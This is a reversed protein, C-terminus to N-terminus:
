LLEKKMLADDFIWPFIINKFPHDNMIEPHVGDYNKIEWSYKNNKLKVIRDKAERIAVDLSYKKWNMLHYSLKIIIKNVNMVYPYHFIPNQLRLGADTPTNWVGPVFDPHRWRRNKSVKFIRLRWPDITSKFVHQRFSRFFHVNSLVICKNPQQCVFLNKKIEDALEPSIIEDGDLKMYLDTAQDYTVNVMETISKWGPRADVFIKNEPDPFEKIKRLTNDPKWVKMCPVPGYTIVIKNALNYVSKLVYEIYDENRFIKIGVTLHM